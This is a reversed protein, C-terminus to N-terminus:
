PRGYSYKGTVKMNITSAPISAGNSNVLKAIKAPQITTANSMAKPKACTKVAKCTAISIMMRGSMGKKTV